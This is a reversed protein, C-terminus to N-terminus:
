EKLGYLQILGERNDLVKLKKGNDLIQYVSDVTFCNIEPKFPKTTDYSVSSHHLLLTDNKQEWNGNVICYCGNYTFTNEEIIFTGGYTITDVGQFRWILRELYNDDYYSYTLPFGSMPIKNEDCSNFFLFAFSLIIRLKTFKM